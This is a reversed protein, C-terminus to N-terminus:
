VVNGRKILYVDFTPFVHHQGDLNYRYWRQSDFVGGTGEWGTKWVEPDTPIDAATVAEFDALESEPTMAMIQEDSSAANQCICYSGVGAPGGAGGNLRVSTAQFALDWDHSTDPSQVSRQVPVGGLGVFAWEDAADVTVTEVQEIQPETASESCGAVVLSLVLLRSTFRRLM